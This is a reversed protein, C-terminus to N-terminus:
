TYLLEQEAFLSGGEDRGGTHWNKDERVGDKSGRREETVQSSVTKGM